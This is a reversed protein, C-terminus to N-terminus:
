PSHGHQSFSRGHAVHRIEGAIRVEEWRGRSRNTAKTGGVAAIHSGRREERGCWGGDRGVPRSLVGDKLGAVREVEDDVQGRVNVCVALGLEDLDGSFHPARLNRLEMTGSSAVLRITLRVKETATQRLILHSQCVARRRRDKKGELSGCAPPSGPLCSRMKPRLCCRTRVGKAGRQLVRVLTSDPRRVDVVGEGWGVRGQGGDAGLGDVDREAELHGEEIQGRRKFTSGSSAVNLAVLNSPDHIEDLQVPDLRGGERAVFSVDQGEDEHENSKELKKM